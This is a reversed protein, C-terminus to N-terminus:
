ENDAKSLFYKENQKKFNGFILVSDRCHVYMWAGANIEFNFTQKNQKLQGEIICPLVEFTLDWETGGIKKLGKIIKPLDNQAINWGECASTDPYASSQKTIGKHSNIITFPKKNDFLIKSTHIVQSESSLHIFLFLIITCFFIKLSNIAQNIFLTIIIRM